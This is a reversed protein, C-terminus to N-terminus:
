SRSSALPRTTLSRAALTSGTATLTASYAAGTQANPLATSIISLASPPPVTSTSNSAVVGACGTLGLLLSSFVVITLFATGLSGVKRPGIQVVGCSHM